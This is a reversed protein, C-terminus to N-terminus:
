LQFCNSTRAAMNYMSQWGPRSGQQRLRIFIQKQIMAIQSTPQSAMPPNFGQPGGVVGGMVGEMGSAMPGRMNGSMGGGGGAMMGAGLDNVMGNQQPQAPGMMGGRGMGMGIGQMMGNNM